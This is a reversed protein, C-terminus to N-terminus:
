SRQGVAAPQLASRWWALQPDGPGPIYSARTEIADLAVAVERPGADCSEAWTRMLEGTRSVSLEPLEHSILKLAARDDTALALGRHSAAALTAAEGDDLRDAYRVFTAVEAGDLDLVTLDGAAELARLDVPTREQAGPAASRLLFTEDAVQRVIALRVGCARAIQGVRGTAYLNILVCADLLM